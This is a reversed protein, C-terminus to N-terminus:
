RTIGPGEDEILVTAVGEDGLNIVSIMIRNGGNKKTFFYSNNLINEFAQKIYEKDAEILPHSTDHFQFRIESSDKSSFQNYDKTITDLLECLNLFRSILNQHIQRSKLSIWYIM